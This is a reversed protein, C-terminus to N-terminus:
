DYYPLSAVWFIIVLIGCLLNLMLSLITGLFLLIPGIKKLRDDQGLLKRLGVEIIWGFTYFLNAGLGYLFALPFLFFVGQHPLNTAFLIFLGTIGIILNYLIRKKEWWKLTQIWNKPEEKQDFLRILNM